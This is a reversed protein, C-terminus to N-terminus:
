FMNTSLRAFHERQHNINGANSGIHGAHEKADDEIDNYTKAQETTLAAKNFGAFAKIMENGSAAADKSKDNAFANKMKLYNDLIENLSVTEKTETAATVKKAITDVSITTPQTASSNKDKKDTSSNNCAAFAIVILALRPFINKM